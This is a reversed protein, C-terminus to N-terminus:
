SVGTSPSAPTITPNAARKSAMGAAALENFTPLDLGDMLKAQDVDPYNRALNEVVIPGVARLTQSVTRPTESKGAEEFREWLGISFPPVTYNTGNVDVVIGPTM